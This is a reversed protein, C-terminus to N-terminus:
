IIRRIAQLDVEFRSLEELLSLVRKVDPQHKQVENQLSRVDLRFDHREESSLGPDKEVAETLRFLAENADVSIVPLGAPRLAQGSIGPVDDCSNEPPENDSVADGPERAEEELDKLLNKLLNEAQNLDRELEDGVRGRGSLGMQLSDFAALAGRFRRNGSVVSEIVMRTRKQWWKIDEDSANSRRLDSIKELRDRVLGANENVSASDEGAGGGIVSDDV